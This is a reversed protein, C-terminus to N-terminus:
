RRLSACSRASCRARLRRDVTPSAAHLRIVERGAQATPEIEQDTGVLRRILRQGDDFQEFVQTVADPGM